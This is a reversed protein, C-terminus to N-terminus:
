VELLCAVFVGCAAHAPQQLHQLRGQLTFQGESPLFVWPLTQLMTWCGAARASWTIHDRQIPGYESWPQVAVTRATCGRVPPIPGMWCPLSFSGFNFLSFALQPFGPAHFPVCCLSRTREVGRTDQPRRASAATPWCPGRGSEASM